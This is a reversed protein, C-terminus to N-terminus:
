LAEQEMEAEPTPDPEAEPPPNMGITMQRPHITYERKKKRRKKQEKADEKTQDYMDATMTALRERWRPDDNNLTIEEYFDTITHDMLRYAKTSDEEEIDYFTHRLEHRLIRERDRDGTAQWCVKDLIIVYDDCAEAHDETLGHAVAAVYCADDAADIADNIDRETNVVNHDIM